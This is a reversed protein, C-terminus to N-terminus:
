DRPSPSTYLLCIMCLAILTVGFGSSYMVGKYTKKHVLYVFVGIGFALIMAIAIDIMSVSTVNELFNSKFIDNFTM